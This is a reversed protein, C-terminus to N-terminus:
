PTRTATWPSNSGSSTGRITNGEVLGTYRTDGLTFEIRAGRLRGDAIAAGALSGTIMQFQQQLVLPGQPTQWSGAVKAPVVWFLATCYLACTGDINTKEDAQWDDMSFSNSVLRTGPRLELLAPRLKLNLQPLLFMTIVTAKSLDTEFIDAEVFSARAAVGASEANRRSLEVLEHNYEVGLARAGRKAAAIVTRGDGSGLDMLFDKDTVQALDLMKEVLPDPSPVWVVDKGEQGIKPQYPQQPAQAHGHPGFGALSLCCALVTGRITPLPRRFRM